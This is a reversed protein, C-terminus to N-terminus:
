TSAETQGISQNWRTRNGSSRQITRIAASSRAAPRLGQRRRLRARERGAVTSSRIAASCLDEVAGVVPRDRQELREGVIPSTRRCPTKTIFRRCPSRGPSRRAFGGTGSPASSTTLLVRHAALEVRRQGRQLSNEVSSWRGRRHAHLSCRALEVFRLSGSISFASRAGLGHRAELLREALQAGRHQDPAAGVLGFRSSPTSTARGSRCAPSWSAAARGGALDLGVGVHAAAILTASPRDLRAQGPALAEAHEEGADAEARDQQQDASPRAM